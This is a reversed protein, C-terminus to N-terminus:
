KYGKYLSSFFIAVLSVRKFSHIQTLAKEIEGQVTKEDNQKQYGKYQSGDYSFTMFYRM